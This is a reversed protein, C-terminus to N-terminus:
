GVITETDIIWVYIIGLSWGSRLDIQYDQMNANYFDYYNNSYLPIVPLVEAFRQQFKLWKRVYTDNDGSETNRMQRSLRFLTEDQLGTKNLVGQYEDTTSFDYYPDFLFSFNSAMFYMNYERDADRYYHSLLEDFSMVDTELNIGIDKLAKTLPDRLAVAVASEESMAWRITLPELEGRARRYRVDDVGEEYPDGDQNLNWGDDALLAKARTVNKSTKLASLQEPMNIPDLVITGEPLDLLEEETLEEVIYETMWQGIGYYGYAAVAHNGVAQRVLSEKDFSISIAQRVAQSSTPGDECAFALFGQGSRPYSAVKLSTGGSQLARAGTIADSDSIRALVDLDGSELEDLMTDKDVRKFVIREVHPKQGQYNGAFYENVTFTAEQAEFDFSELKYPGCTLYPHYEYGVEPDLLTYRLMDTSYEGFVYGNETEEPAVGNAAALYVGDGDDVVDCGPAIVSIPYPQVNLLNIGYYHPLYERSVQMTFVNDTEPVLKVGELVNTKGSHYADYGVLHEMGGYVGGIERLEPSTLLLLAFVYDKAKIPSGDNYTLDEVLEITFTCSGDSNDVVDANEVVTKNMRMGLSSTWAVTEYGHILEQVDHDSANDGWFGLGFEGTITTPAGVVVRTGEQIGLETEVLAGPETEGTAAPTEENNDGAVQATPTPAPAETALEAAFGAPVMGVLMAAVLLWGIIHKRKM